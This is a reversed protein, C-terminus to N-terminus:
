MVEATFCFPLLNKISDVVIVPSGTTNCGLIIKINYGMRTEYELLTQRCQGCPAVPSVGDNTANLYSVAIAEVQANTQNMAINALLVQEACLCVPYSVNEQNSGCIITGDTLRASAGVKFNSYPAYATSTANRAMNLLKIDNSSLQSDNILETYTITLQKQM